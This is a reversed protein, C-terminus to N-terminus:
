STRRPRGGLVRGAHAAKRRGLERPQWVTVPCALDDGRRSITSARASVDRPVVAWSPSGGLAGMFLDNACCTATFLAQGALLADV